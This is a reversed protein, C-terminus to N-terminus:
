SGIVSILQGPALRNTGSVIVRDSKQLTGRVLVREGETYLVEVDKRAVRYTHNNVPEGIVHCSWLGRVGSVLATNPLWYGSTAVTRDLALNATQGPSIESAVSDELKLVVTRTRTAADLEPLVSSVKAQYTKQGIKLSQTSGTQIQAVEAVPVGIHAEIDGNEVLRIVGQGSSVATGENLNIAGITGTFPAKLTSKNLDIDLNAIRADIQAIAAQQADIQEPRTGALLEDLQSQAEAVRAQQADIEESRTGALLEDLQSQAQNLRAQQANVETDVEEYQERSIAGQEYLGKRRDRKSQALELQKELETVTARSAAITESRSGAKMQDLQAQAQTLKARSAAITESRSGAQMERLQAEAQSREALLQQKEVELSGTELVALITDQEVKQGEDVNISLLKGSREFGLESSRNAAITGTYNRSVQYSDVAELSITKVPLANDSPLAVSNSSSESLPPTKAAFPNILLISLGSLLIVAGGVWLKWNRQPQAAPLQHYGTEQLRDALDQLFVAAKDSGNGSMQMAMHEIVQFLGADLLKKNAALIKSTQNPYTLLVEILSHYAEISEQNTERFKYIALAKKIQTAINKLFNAADTSGKQKMQTAVSEMEEVLDSNILEENAELIDIARDPYTLLAEILQELPSKESSVRLQTIQQTPITEEVFPNFTENNLKTAEIDILQKNM